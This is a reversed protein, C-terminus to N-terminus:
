SNPKISERDFPQTKYRLQESSHKNKRDMSMVKIALEDDKEIM